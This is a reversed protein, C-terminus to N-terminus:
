RVTRTRRRHLGEAVDFGVSEVERRVRTRERDTSFRIEYDSVTQLETVMHFNRM